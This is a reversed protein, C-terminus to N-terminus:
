TQIGHRQLHGFFSKVGFIIAAILLGNILFAYIQPLPSNLDHELAALLFWACIIFFQIFTKVRGSKDGGANIKKKLCIVWDIFLLVELIVINIVLAKTIVGICVSSSSFFTLFIFCQCTHFKDRCRDAAGGWYSQIKLKKAIIGDLFDSLSIFVAFAFLLWLWVPFVFFAALQILTAIIGALTVLNAANKFLFRETEALTLSTM